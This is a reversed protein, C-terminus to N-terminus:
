LMLERSGFWLASAICVNCTHADESRSSSLLPILLDDTEPLSSVWSPLNQWPDPPMLTIVDSMVCAQSCRCLGAKMNFLEPSVLFAFAEQPEEEGRVRSGGM